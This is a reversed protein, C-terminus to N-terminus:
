AFAQQRYRARARGEIEDWFGLSAFTHELGPLTHFLINKIVLRPLGCQILTYCRFYVWNRLAAFLALCNTLARTSIALRTDWDARKMILPRIQCWKDIDDHTPNPYAAYMAAYYVETVQDDTEPLNPQALNETCCRTDRLELAIRHLLEEGRRHLPRACVALLEIALDAMNREVLWLAADLSQGPRNTKVIYAVMEGYAPAVWDAEEGPFISWGLVTSQNFMDRRGREWLPEVRAAEEETLREVLQTRGNEALMLRVRQQTDLDSVRGSCDMSLLGIPVLRPPCRRMAAFFVESAYFQRFADILQTPWMDDVFPLEEFGSDFMRQALEERRETLWYCLRQVHAPSRKDFRAFLETDLATAADSM